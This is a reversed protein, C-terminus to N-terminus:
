KVIKYLTVGGHKGVLKRTQKVPLKYNPFLRKVEKEYDRADIEWPLNMYGNHNSRPTHNKYEKGEWITYKATHDVLKGVKYQWIHRLEHLLAELTWEHTSSNKLRIVGFRFQDGTSGYLISDGAIGTYKKIKFELLIGDKETIGLDERIIDIFPQYKALTAYKPKRGM